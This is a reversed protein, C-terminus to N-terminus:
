WQQISSLYEVINALRLDAARDSSDLARFTPGWVLMQGSGHAPIDPSGNEIIDRITRRPFVGKNRLVITTLDPPTTKLAKAV